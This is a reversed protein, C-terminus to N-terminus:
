GARLRGPGSRAKQTGAPLPTTAAPTLALDPQDAHHVAMWWRMYFPVRTANGTRGPGSDGPPSSPLRSMPM